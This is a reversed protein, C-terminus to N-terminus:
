FRRLLYLGYRDQLLIMQFWSSPFPSKNILDRFLHVLEMLLDHKDILTAHSELYIKYMQASLKSLIAITLACFVSQFSTNKATFLLSDRLDQIQGPNKLYFLQFFPFNGRVYLPINQM